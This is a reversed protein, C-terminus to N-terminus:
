VQKQIRLRREWFAIQRDAGKRGSNVTFVKSGDVYIEYRLCSIQKAVVRNEM